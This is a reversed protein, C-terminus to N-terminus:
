ICGSTISLPCEMRHPNNSKISTSILTPAESLRAPRMFSIYAMLLYLLESDLRHRIGIQRTSKNPPLSYAAAGIPRYSALENRLSSLEIMSFSYSTRESPQREQLLGLGVESLFLSHTLFDLLYSSPHTPATLPKISDPLYTSLYTPLYTSVDCISM